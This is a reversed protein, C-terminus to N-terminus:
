HAFTDVPSRRHSQDSLCHHCARQPHHQRRDTRAHRGM